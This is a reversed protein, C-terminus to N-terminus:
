KKILLTEKKVSLEYPLSPSNPQIKLLEKTRLKIESTHTKCSAKYRHFPNLHYLSILGRNPYAARITRVKKKKNQKM